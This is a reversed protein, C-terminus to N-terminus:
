RTPDSNYSRYIPKGDKAYSNVFGGIIPGANYVRPQGSSDRVVVELSEFVDKKLYIPKGDEWYGILVGERESAAYGNTNQGGNRSVQRSARGDNVVVPGKGVDKSVDKSKSDSRSGNPSKSYAKSAAGSGPSHQPAAQMARNGVATGRGLQASIGSSCSNSSSQAQVSGNLFLVVVAVLLISISKKM